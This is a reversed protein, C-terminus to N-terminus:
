QTETEFNSLHYTNNVYHIYNYIVEERRIIKYWVPTPRYFIIATNSFKKVAIFKASSKFLAM